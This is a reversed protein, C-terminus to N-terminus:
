IFTLFFNDETLVVHGKITIAFDALGNNNTDAQVLTNPGAYRYRLEAGLGSFSGDGTVPDYFGIFTFNQTNELEVDADIDMFDFIDSSDFRTILDRGALGVTSDSAASYHFVDSGSGGRMEDSGAGGDLTDDGSGGFLLDRGKGGGLFDGGAGGFIDDAGDNGYLTDRGNDGEVIDNGSRGEILDDGGRGSIRNSLSSGYLNDNLQSGLVNEIRRFEDSLDMEFERSAGLGQGLQVTVGLLAVELSNFGFWGYDLTDNGTGGDIDNYGYGGKITDNGAGGFLEDDGHGGTIFDKGGFGQVRYDNWDILSDFLPTSFRYAKPILTESFNTGRLIIDINDDSGSHM